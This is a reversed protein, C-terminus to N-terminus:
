GPSWQAVGARVVLLAISLTLCQRLPLGPLLLAALTLSVSLFVLVTLFACVSDARASKRTRAGCCACRRENTALLADCKVCRTM